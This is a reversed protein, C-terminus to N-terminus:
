LLWNSTHWISPLNVLAKMLIQLVVLHSGVTLLTVDKYVLRLFGCFPCRNVARSDAWLPVQLNVSQYLQPKVDWEVCFLDNRLRKGLGTEESPISFVLGLVVFDHM